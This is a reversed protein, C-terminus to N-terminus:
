MVYATNSSLKASNSTTQKNDQYNTCIMYGIPVDPEASGQGNIAADIISLATAPIEQSAYADSLHESENTHSSKPPWSVSNGIQPSEM